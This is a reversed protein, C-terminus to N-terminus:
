VTLWAYCGRGGFDERRAGESLDLFLGDGVLGNVPSLERKEHLLHRPVCAVLGCPEYSPHTIFFEVFGLM